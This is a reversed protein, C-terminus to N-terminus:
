PGDQLLTPMCRVDIREEGCRKVRDYGVLPAAIHGLRLREHPYTQHDAGVLLTWSRFAQSTQQGIASAGFIRM